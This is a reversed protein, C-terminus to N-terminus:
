VLTCLINQCIVPNVLVNKTAEVLNTGFDTYAFHTYEKGSALSPMIFETVGYYYALSFFFIIAGLKRRTSFFLLYAGWFAVYLAANEKTILLLLLFILMKNYEKRDLFYIAFAYFATALVIPHFDFDIASQFGFYFIYAVSIFTAAAVSRLKRRTLLYIPIVSTAIALSQAFLLLYPNPFLKYFPALYILPLEFHDGLNNVGIITNTPMRGRSIKWVAQNYDGM